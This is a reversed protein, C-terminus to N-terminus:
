AVQLREIINTVSDSPKAVDFPLCLLRLKDDFQYRFEKKFYRTQPYILAVTGCGYKKGYAFLQYMDAQSIGHNSNSSPDNIRKWKTDLIFTTGDNRLVIDPRMQFVNENDTTALYHSTSQTKVDFANQHKRFGDAVYDEFIQEMPFLLCREIHKGSFTALGRGFLFLGVWQMVSQYHQMTRDIKHKRWDDSYYKSMPIDNFCIEMQYLLQQNHSQKVLPKLKDITSHILRNAPRNANFDDYRVYFRARNTLNERLHQPFLIRGKLRSLNEEVPSYHKAIGRKTLLVLNELFLRIFIELMNFNQIARIGGENLKAHRIQRWTRLMQLFVHKTKTAKEDDIDGDNGEYDGDNFDVKPLIELVRGKRTQIVGVYNQTKLKGNRVELVPRYRGEKDHTHSIAFEKFEEIEAANFSTSSEDIVDYERLIKPKHKM